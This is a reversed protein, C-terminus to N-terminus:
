EIANEIAIFDNDFRINENRDCALKRASDLQVSIRDPCFKQRSLFETQIKKECMRIKKIQKFVYSSQYKKM